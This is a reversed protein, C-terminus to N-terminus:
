VGVGNVEDSEPAGSRTSDGMAPATPEVKSKPSTDQANM